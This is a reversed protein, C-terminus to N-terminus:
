IKGRSKLDHQIDGLIGLDALTEEIQKVARDDSLDGTVSGDALAARLISENRMAFGLPEHISPPVWGDERALRYVTALTIDDGELKKEKGTLRKYVAEARPIDLAGIKISRCLRGPRVIAEDIEKYIANTTCVVRLDVLTGFIGDTANLMGSMSSINDAARPVLCQDADEVVLILSSDPHDERIESIGAALNPGSLEAILQPPILIFLAKPLMDFLARVFYTKGTGPEGDILVLRGCPSPSGLDTVVHEFDKVITDTYNGPQFPVNAVGMSTTTTGRNTATLVYVRGKEPHKGINATFYDGMTQIFDRSMSATYVKLDSDKSGDMYLYGHDWVYCVDIGGNEYEQIFWLRGQEKELFEMADKWSKSFLGVWLKRTCSLGEGLAMVAVATDLHNTQITHGDGTPAWQTGRYWPNL